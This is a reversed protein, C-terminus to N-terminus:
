FPCVAGDMWVSWCRAYIVERSGTADDDMRSLLRLIDVSGASMARVLDLDSLFRICSMTPM